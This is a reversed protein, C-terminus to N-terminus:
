GQEERGVRRRLEEVIRNLEDVRQRLGEIDGVQQRLREIEVKDQASQRRLRELEGEGQAIREQPTPLWQKAEPDYLRLDSGNRELHLGLIKSPLRGQLPRVPQYAGARLRYGQLPPKLYDGFPDFLFYEKVRLVDRYRRFKTEQDEHRTSSSTLEITVDPGKGEEWVLYNLRKHKPVGKVVLVDPSIHRRRNGPEYFLLLNGSVYVMSDGAYYAELTQILDNMLIRHHDTEAMPRGDSTPYDKNSGIAKPVVTSM